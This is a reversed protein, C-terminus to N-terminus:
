SKNLQANIIQSIEEARDVIMFHGGGNILKIDKQNVHPILRDLTGNIKICNGLRENNKWTILENIAWKTFNSDTDDLIEGLLKTKRTGFLFAAISKPLNFMKAPLKKCIGTLGIIRYIWRLEDRVEASSILVTLKPRLRKSIETAVLGGFSVGLIAYPQTTDIENSLRFAYDEIRENKLHPIWDIPVLEDKLTLFQFVRSDAGLGSICYIRM